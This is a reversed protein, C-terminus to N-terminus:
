FHTGQDSMLLRPCGFMIVVNEFVFQAVTNARFDRVHEVEAWRALYNKMTIIYRVRSRKVLPNILIVFDVIWKDFNHLTVQPVLYM